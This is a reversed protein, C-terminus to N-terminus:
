TFSSRRRRLYIHVFIWIAHKVRFGSFLTRERTLVGGEEARAAMYFSGGDLLPGLDARGLAKKSQM